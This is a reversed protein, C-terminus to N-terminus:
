SRDGLGLIVDSHVKSRHACGEVRHVRELILKSTASGSSANRVYFRKGRKGKGETSLVSNSGGGQSSESM